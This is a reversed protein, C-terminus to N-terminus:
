RPKRTCLSFLTLYLMYLSAISGQRCRSMEDFRVLPGFGTETSLSGRVSSGPGQGSPQVACAASGSDTVCCVLVSFCLMGPTNGPPHRLGDGVVTGQGVM